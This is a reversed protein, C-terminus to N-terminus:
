GPSEVSALIASSNLFYAFTFYDETVAAALPAGFHSLNILAARLGDLSYSLPHLSDLSLNGSTPRLLTALM